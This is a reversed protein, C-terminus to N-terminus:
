GSGTTCVFDSFSEWAELLLLAGGQWCALGMTAPVTTLAFERPKLVGKATGIQNTHASEKFVDYTWTAAVGGTYDSGGTQALYVLFPTGANTFVEFADLLVVTLGNNVAIGETAPTTPAAIERPREVNLGAGVKTTMGSDLFVDYNWTAATGTTFDAGGVKNLYVRYPVPAGIISYFPKPPDSADYGRVVVSVEDGVRCPANNNDQQYAFDDAGASDDVWTGPSSSSM